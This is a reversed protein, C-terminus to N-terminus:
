RDEVDFTIKLTEKDVRDYQSYRAIIYHDGCDRCMGFATWTGKFIVRSQSTGDSYTEKLVDGTPTHNPWCGNFHKYDEETLANREVEFKRDM